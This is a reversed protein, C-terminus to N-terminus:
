LVISFEKLGMIEINKHLKDISSPPYTPSFILKKCWSSSITLGDIIGYKVKDLTCKKTFRFKRSPYFMFFILLHSYGNYYGKYHCQITDWSECIFPRRHRKGKGIYWLGCPIVGMDACYPRIVYKGACTRRCEAWLTAHGTGHEYLINAFKSPAFRLLRHCYM